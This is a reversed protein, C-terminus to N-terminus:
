QQHSALLQFRPEAGAAQQAQLSIRQLVSAPNLLQQVVGPRESAPGFLAVEITEAM